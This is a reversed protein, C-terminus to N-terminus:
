FFSKIVEFMTLKSDISAINRAAREVEEDEIIDDDAFSMHGSGSITPSPCESLSERAMRRKKLPGVQQDGNSIGVSDLSFGININTNIFYNCNLFHM